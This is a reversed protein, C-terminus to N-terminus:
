RSQHRHFEGRGDADAEWFVGRRRFDLLPQRQWPQDPGDVCLEAEADGAFDPEGVHQGRRELQGYIDRCHSADGSGAGGISAEGKANWQATAILKPSSFSDYFNMTGRTAPLGGVMVTAQMSVPSLSNVPTSSFSLTTVSPPLVRIGAQTVATLGTSSFTLTQTGLTNFTVNFTAVGMDAAAFTYIVPQLLAANDTTTLTVTGTFAVDANGFQDLVSLTVPAAIGKSAHSPYPSTIFLSTATQPGAAVVISLTADGGTASATHATVAYTGALTFEPLQFTTSGAVTTQNYVANPGNVTLTVPFAATTSRVQNQEV